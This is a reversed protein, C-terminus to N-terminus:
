DHPLGGDPSWVALEHGSPDRFQFRRGGPFAFPEVTITGGAQVVREQTGALDESFLVVLPGGPVVQDVKTLGGFDDEGPWRMGAYEPGYEVFEWGFAAEYFSRASALDTTTLEVYDIAHHRHQSM